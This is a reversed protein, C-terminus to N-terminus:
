SPYREYVDVWLATLQRASMVVTRPCRESDSTHNVELVRAQLLFVRRNEHHNNINQRCLIGILQGCYPGSITKLPTFKQKNM